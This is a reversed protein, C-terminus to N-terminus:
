ASCCHKLGSWNPTGAVSTDKEDFNIEKSVGFDSLKVTGDKTTLINAAKLDRHIVNRGHLYVLGHLMGVVYYVVLQEPFAGFQKITHYLSGNEVFRCLLQM